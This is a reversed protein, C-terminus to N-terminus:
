WGRHTLPCALRHQAENAPIVDDALEIALSLDNEDLADLAKKNKEDVEVVICEALDMFTGTGEHIVYYYKAM